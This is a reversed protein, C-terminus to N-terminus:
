SLDAVCARAGEAYLRTLAEIVAQRFVANGPLDTGFIAEIKLLADVLAAVDKGGGAAKALAALEDAMPDRVEIVNGQEDVGTVYRMWGAVGLVLRSFPKGHELRHRIAGLFRPPLKQSGDMAIQWTLHKLAPNLFRERLAKKYSELDAGPPVVLTSTIEEDMLKTIYGAFAPDSMTEAVTRYGSLYGLYAICSHSGNLLRLKMFEFPKVDKVIQAGFKEWAPRGATFKDEIVWQGFVETLLPCADDMGLISVAQERDSETVAPVIRDVMTNPFAITETVWRGFEPDRRMAFERMLGCLIDGNESLNDCSLVTFPMIGAKRRRELAESLFGHITKPRGPNSLDHVIDPHTVNLRGTAPDSYYGKETVTLSVIRVSPRCMVALVEEPNEPAVFVKKLSGVVRVSDGSIDRSCVSYLYDQEELGNRLEPAMLPIVGVIGWETDGTALVDDTYVAQHARHFAGIGLHVIGVDVKSRDYTPVKVTKKLKGLNQTSLRM